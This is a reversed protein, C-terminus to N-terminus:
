PSAIRSITFFYEFFSVVDSLFSPYANVSLRADNSIRTDVIRPNTSNGFLRRSCHFVLVKFTKKRM